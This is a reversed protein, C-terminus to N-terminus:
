TVIYQIYRLLECRIASMWNVIAVDRGSPRAKSHWNHIFTSLKRSIDLAINWSHLATLIYSYYDKDPKYNHLSTECGFSYIYTVVNFSYTRTVTHKTAGFM